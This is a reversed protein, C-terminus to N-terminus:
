HTLKIISYKNTEEILTYSKKLTEYEADRTTTVYYSAGSKIKQDIEGGIPWGLRNTQFLFATDGMYPAIVKADFPAIADIRTGAEVIAPNNINFYGRVEYWGLALSILYCTFLLLTFTLKSFLTKRLSFIYSAGTGILMALSPIIQIQYYDHQVNGTAIVSLYILSGLAMGGVVATERRSRGLSLLGYALPVLGWYGLILRGIRDGFLWRLWAGKFRIGNGNFLWSNAPIGEPFNAVYNRWLAYPIVSLTSAFFITVLRTLNVKSGFLSYLAIPFGVILATPKMLVALSMTLTYTVLLVLKGTEYYRLFAYLASLMFFILHPEPLIVRGYFINYPLTAYVFASVMAALNTSVQKVILYILGITLTSVIVSLLRGWEVLSLQPYSRSLSAHIASIIPFEVFRYGNPNDLGSPISSLDHYTPHMLDIGKKVYERAVSATDAQRWSHWDALPSNFRYLRLTAGLVMIVFILVINLKKM